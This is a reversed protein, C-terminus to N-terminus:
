CPSRPLYKDTAIVKVMEQRLYEGNGLFELRQYTAGGTGSTPYNIAGMVLGQDKFHYGLAGELAGYINARPTPEVKAYRTPWGDKRGFCLRTKTEASLGSQIGGSVVAAELVAENM